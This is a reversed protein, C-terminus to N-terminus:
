NFEDVTLHVRAEAWDHEVQTGIVVREMRSCNFEM